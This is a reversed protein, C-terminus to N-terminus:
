KSEPTLNRYMADTAEDIIKPKNRVSVSFPILFCLGPNDFTSKKSKNMLM